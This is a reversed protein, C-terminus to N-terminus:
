DVSKVSEIAFTVVARIVGEMSRVTSNVFENVEETDEGKLILLIDFEGTTLWGEDVINYKALDKLIEEDSSPAVSMSVFATIM